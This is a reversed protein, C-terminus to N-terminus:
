GDGDKGFRRDVSKSQCNDCFEELIHGLQLPPCMPRETANVGAFSLLRRRNARSFANEFYFQQDKGLKREQPTETRIGIKSQGSPSGVLYATPAWTDNLYLDDATDDGRKNNEIVVKGSLALDNMCSSFMCGGDSQAINNIITTGSVSNDDNNNYIGGGEKATNGTIM